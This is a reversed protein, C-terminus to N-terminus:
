IMEQVMDIPSQIIEGAFVKKNVHKSFIKETITQGM